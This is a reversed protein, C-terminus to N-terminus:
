EEEKVEATTEISDLKKIEKSVELKEIEEKNSIINIQVSSLSNENVNNQINVQPNVKHFRDYLKCYYEHLMKRDDISIYGQIKIIEEELVQLQVFLTANALGKNEAFQMANHFIKNTIGYKKMYSFRAALKKKDSRVAGGKRGGKRGMEAANEKTFQAPKHPFPM